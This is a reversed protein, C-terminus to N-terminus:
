VLQGSFLSVYWRPYVKNLYTQAYQLNEFIHRRWAFARRVELKKRLYKKRMYIGWLLHRRSRPMYKTLTTLHTWLYTYVFNCITSSQLAKRQKCYSSVRHGGIDGSIFCTVEIDRPKTDVCTNCQIGTTCKPLSGNKWFTVSTMIKTRTHLM